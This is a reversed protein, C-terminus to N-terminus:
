VSADPFIIVANKCHIADYPGISLFSVTKEPLFESTAKVLDEITGSWGLDHWADLHTPPLVTSDSIDEKYETTYTVPGYGGLTTVSAIFRQLPTNPYSDWLKSWDNIITSERTVSDIQKIDVVRQIRIAGRLHQATIRRTVNPLVAGDKIVSAEVQYNGNALNVLGTFSMAMAFSLQNGAVLNDMIISVLNRLANEETNGEISTVHIRHYGEGVYSIDTLNIRKPQFTLSPNNRSITPDGKRLAAEVRKDKIQVIYTAYEGDISLEAKGTFQEPTQALRIDLEVYDDVVKGCLPLYYDNKYQCTLDITRKM